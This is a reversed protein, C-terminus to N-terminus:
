FHRDYLSTLKLVMGDLSYPLCQQLSISGLGLGLMCPWRHKVPQLTTVIAVGYQRHRVSLRKLQLRGVIRRKAYLLSTLIGRLGVSCQYFGYSPFVMKKTKISDSPLFTEITNAKVIACRLLARRIHSRVKYLPWFKSSLGLIYYKFNTPVKWLPGIRLDNMIM